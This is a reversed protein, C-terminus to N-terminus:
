KKNGHYIVRYLLPSLLLLWFFPSRIVNHTLYYPMGIILIFVYPFDRIYRYCSIVLLIIGFFGYSFLVTGITSHLELQYDETILYSDFRDRVGEGAGFLIYEPHNFIRDYGREAIFGTSYAYDDKQSVRNYLNDIFEPNNKYLWGVALIFSFFFAIFIFPILRKHYVFVILCIFAPIFPVAGFSLSLMILYMGLLLIIYFIIKFRTKLKEYEKFVFYGVFSIMILVFSALQNPNNFTLSKRVAQEHHIFSIISLLLFVSFVSFIIKVVAKDNGGFAYIFCLVTVLNFILYSAYILPEYNQNFLSVVLNVAVGYLIFLSLLKIERTSILEIFKKSKFLFPFTVVPLLLIFDSIQPIGSKWFYFPKFIIYALFAISYIKSLKM